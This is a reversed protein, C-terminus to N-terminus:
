ISNEDIEIVFPTMWSRLAFITQLGVRESIVRGDDTMLRLTPASTVGETMSSLVQNEVDIKATTIGLKLLTLAESDIISAQAKCPACSQTFIEVIHYRSSKLFVDLEEQTKIEIM